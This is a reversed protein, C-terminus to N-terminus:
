ERVSAVMWNQARGGEKKKSGTWTGVRRGVELKGREEWRGLVDFRATGTSNIFLKM